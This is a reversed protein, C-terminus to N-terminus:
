KATVTARELRVRVEDIALGRVQVVKLRASKGHVLTVDRKSLSLADALTEVLEANAAGDVPPSALTVVLAGNRVGTIRSVRARPRAAVQFRVTDPEMGHIALNPMDFPYGLGTARMRSMAPSRRTEGGIQTPVLHIVRLEDLLYITAERRMLSASVSPFCRGKVRQDKRRIIM